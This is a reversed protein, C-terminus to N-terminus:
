RPSPPGAPPSTRLLVISIRRNRPDTPAAALLPDADARGVVEAIRREPIGKAELVRRTANAREASLQWNDSGAGPAFTLADTHGRIVIRNPLHEVAKAVLGLLEETHAYMVDSGLPFMANDAQDLLQIRLGEAGEDVVVSDALGKLEPSERIADLLSARASEFDTAERITRGEEVAEDPADVETGPASPNGAVPAPTFPSVPTSPMFNPTASMGELLGYAGGPPVSNVKADSFYDSLGKLTDESASSILWLLLFFAMMATVFDAYAVKWAGGHHAHGGVEELRKIMVPRKGRDRAM